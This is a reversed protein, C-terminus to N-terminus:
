DLAPLWIRLRGVRRQGSSESGSAWRESFSWFSKPYRLPQRRDFRQSEAGESPRRMAQLWGQLTYVRRSCSEIEKGYSLLKGVTFRSKHLGYNCQLFGWGM